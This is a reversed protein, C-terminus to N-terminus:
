GWHPPNVYSRTTKQPTDRSGSEDPQTTQSGPEVTPKEPALSRLHELEGVLETFTLSAARKTFREVDSETVGEGRSVKYAELCQASLYKRAERGCEALPELEAVQAQAEDREATVTELQQQVEKLEMTDTRGIAHVRTDFRMGYVQEMETQIDAPLTGERFCREAKEVIEADPNSGKSVASVEVLHADDVAVECRILTTKGTKPDIQEYQRGPWHFCSARYWEAECINCIHTGGNFGVSVRTIVGEEIADIFVDSSPYSADNLPMGRILKFDGTVVDDAYTGELSVGFGQGRRHSDKFQISKGLDSAFNRLTRETMYTGHADTKGSSIVASIFARRANEESEGEGDTQRLSVACLERCLM